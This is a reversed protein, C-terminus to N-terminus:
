PLKVKNVLVLSKIYKTTKQNSVAKVIHASVIVYTSACYVNKEPRKSPNKKAIIQIKVM